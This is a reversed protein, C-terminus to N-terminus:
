SIVAVTVVPAFIATDTPPVEPTSIAKPPPVWPMLAVTCLPSSITTSSKLPSRPVWPEEPVDPVDPVEPVEPDLPLELEEPVDPVDLV